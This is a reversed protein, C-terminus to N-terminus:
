LNWKDKLSNQFLRLKKVDIIDLSLSDLLTNARSNYTCFRIYDKEFYTFFSALCLLANSYIIFHKSDIPKPIIEIIKNYYFYAHHWYNIQAFLQGLFLYVNCYIDLYKLPEKKYILECNEIMQPVYNSIKDIKKTEVYLGCIGILSKVLSSKPANDDLILYKNLIEISQLYLEEANEFEKKQMFLNAYNFYVRAMFDGYYLKYKENLDKLISIAENFCNVALEKKDFFAYFTGFNSFSNALFILNNYPNELSLEKKIEIAKRYSQEASEFDYKRRFIIGLNNYIQGLLVKEPSLKITNEYENIAKEYYRNNDFFLAIEFSVKCDMNTKAAEEYFIVAEAYSEIRNKIAITLNAKAIYEQALINGSSSLLDKNRIFDDSSNKLEELSLAEYAEILNGNDLAQRVRILNSSDKYNKNEYINSISNEFILLDEGALDIKRTCEILQSNLITIQENFYKKKDQKEENAEFVELSSLKSILIDKEIQLSDLNKHLQNFRDYINLDVVPKENKSSKKKIEYELFTAIFKFSYMAANKSAYSITNPDRKSSNPEIAKTEILTSVIDSIGRIVGYYKVNNIRCTKCFGYGEMEFVQMQNFDTHIRLGTISLNSEIIKEGSLVNGNKTQIREKGFWNQIKDNKIQRNLFSAIEVLEQDINEIEPRSLTENAEEKTMEYYGIKEAFVVDFVEFDTKRSGGIGVFLALNFEYTNLFKQIKTSSNVNGQGTQGVYYEVKDKDSIEEYGFGYNGLISDYSNKQNPLLSLVEDFEAQIATMILVKFVHKAM